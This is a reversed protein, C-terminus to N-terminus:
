SLFFGVSYKLRNNRYTSTSDLFLTTARVSRARLALFFDKLKVETNALIAGRMSQAPARPLYSGVVLGVM